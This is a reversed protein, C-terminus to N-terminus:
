PRGWDVVRELAIRILPREELRHTAYQPYKGRLAAVAASHEAPAADPALTAARGEARLWAIAISSRRVSVLLGAAAAPYFFLVLWRHTPDIVLVVVALMTLLVTAVLARQSLAGTPALATWVFVVVFVAVAPLVSAVREAPPNAFLFDLLPLFVLVLPALRLVTGLRGGSAFLADLAHDPQWAETSPGESVL